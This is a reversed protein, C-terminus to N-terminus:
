YSKLKFFTLYYKSIWEKNKSIARSFLSYSQCKNNLKTTHMEINLINSGTYTM